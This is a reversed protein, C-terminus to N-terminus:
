QSPTSSNGKSAGSGMKVQKKGRDVLGQRKSKRTKMLEAVGAAAVRAKKPGLLEKDIVEYDGVKAKKTGEELAAFRNALGPSPTGVTKEHSHVEVEKRKDIIVEQTGPEQTGGDNAEQVQVTEKNSGLKKAGQKPVWVKAPVVGKKKPCFKDGHGYTECQLCRQPYWPVDVFVSVVSGEKMEVEISRPIDKSAEVEVCIKAFALRQQSATIKDMYLPTGIASAIYSLGNQNFLELPVNRLHIWLPLRAMNFELSALGPEWKRIVLPKNQIHWPGEELVKDRTTANPFQIIFLNVGVSRIVVKGDAGWLVNVLKQFLSFNLPRGIFQAVVTNKWQAEGEEIVEKPPAVIVKDKLRQPPYFRLTQDTSASFLSRWDVAKQGSAGEVSEANKMIEKQKGENRLRAEMSVGEVESQSIGELNGFRGGSSPSSTM